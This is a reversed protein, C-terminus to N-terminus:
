SETAPLVGAERASAVEEADLMGDGNADLSAFTGAEMDPFVMEFESMSVMGDGDTDIEGSQAAAIAPLSLGLALVPLIFTKTM